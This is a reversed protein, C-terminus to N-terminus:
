IIFLLAVGLALRYIVFPMLGMRNIAGLFLHICVLASIGSLLAGMLLVQWNVPVTSKVLDLTLLLGAGLIVPISLLFSFRAASERDFGLFLAATMTIGSRSTGPVLALMQSFGIIMAKPLTMAKLPWRCQAVYDAVGLLAGFILTTAAIVQLSRMSEGLGSTKLFLGFVVAPITALGIYWAMKSHQTTGRGMVSFCWDRILLQLDKRFYIVVAALTGIHVAVDFALGQDPWHLLRAPLILHASSSIPLFETLGQILSLVVIHLLDMLYHHHDSLYPSSESM